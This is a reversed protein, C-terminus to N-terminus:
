LTIRIIKQSKETIKYRDDIRRGILWMIEDGTTLVCQREKDPISIKTDILYDSVKKHGTMGLPMFTDAVQWLRVTLPFTVGDVCLLAQDPPTVLSMLRSSDVWEIRPDDHAITQPKIEERERPEIIIRRRDITAIYHPAMFQRGSSGISQVMDGIVEPHFGYPHILEFLVFNINGQQEVIALDIINRSIAEKRIREIQHDIFGQAQELRLLNQTMTQDFGPAADEIRPIIDHRLRNRLYKTQANSSDNMYRVGNQAAYDTIQDRTAFIMPRIVIGKTRGIGTLGRLGTGRFLNIFFTEISDNSHHAIAIRNFQHDRCLADFWEYRLRRAAMQISEGYQAAVLKTSFRQTYLPIKNERAVREVLEQEADSEAGRLEFNCHAIAVQYGARLFLDLMVM